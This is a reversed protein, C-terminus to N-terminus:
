EELKRWEAEIEDFPVYDADISKAMELERRATRHQKNRALARGYEYHFKQQLALDNPKLSVAKEYHELGDSLADKEFMLLGLTANAYSNNPDLRLAKRVSAEAEQMKDEEWLLYALLNHRDASNPEFEIAKRYLAEVESQRGTQKLLAGLNAWVQLSDPACEIAKRYVDEAEDIMGKRKLLFGLNTWALGLTPALKVATRCAHLAGVDDGTKSLLVGLNHWAAAYGPDIRIAERYSKVAESDRDTASLLQGWNLWAPAFTPYATITERYVQEAEDRRGTKYLLLGLNCLDQPTLATEEGVLCRVLSLATEFDGSSYLKASLNRILAPEVPVGAEDLAVAQKARREIVPDPECTVDQDPDLPRSADIEGLRGRIEATLREAVVDLYDKSVLDTDSLLAEAGSEPRSPVLEKTEALFEATFLAVDKQRPTQDLGHATKLLTTCLKDQNFADAGELESLPPKLDSWKPGLLIPVVRSRELRLYVAGSEWYVWPRDISNWTVLALLCDTQALHDHIDEFWSKGPACGKGPHGDSSFWILAGTCMRGVLEALADAIGSDEEAHSIFVLPKGNEGMGM